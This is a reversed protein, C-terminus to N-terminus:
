PAVRTVLELHAAADPMLEPTFRGANGTDPWSPPPGLPQASTARLLGSTAFIRDFGVYLTREPRVSDVAASRVQVPGEFTVRWHLLAPSTPMPSMMLDPVTVIRKGALVAARRAAGERSFLM